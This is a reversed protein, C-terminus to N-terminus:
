RSSGGLGVHHRASRKQGPQPPWTLPVVKTALTQQMHWQDLPQSIKNELDLQSERIIMLRREVAKVEDMTEERVNKEKVLKWECAKNETWLSYIAVAGVGGTLFLLSGLLIVAGLLYKM